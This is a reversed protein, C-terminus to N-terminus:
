WWRGLVGDGDVGGRDLRKRVVTKKDIAREGEKGWICV